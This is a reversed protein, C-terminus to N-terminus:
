LGDITGALSDITGTLAAISGPMIDILGSTDLGMFGDALDFDVRTIRGFTDPAGPLSISASMGPTATDVAIATVKQVRGTGQRRALIAAAAGPGPYPTSDLEFLIGREPTGASDTREQEIDFEDRWRYRVVVGTASDGARALTDSGDRTNTASISVLASIQRNEPTALRWDRLEDCWLVLNESSTIGMLFDWASVGAKWVFLEPRREIVPIRESTSDAADGGWEYEYNADATTAGSFAEIVETGEYLMADDIYGIETAFSGDVKFLPFAAVAGPPAVAIVSSRANWNLDSLAVTNGAVDPWPTLGNADVWRIVSTMFRDHGGFMRGYGSLVYSKGQQVSTKGALDMPSVYLTASATANYGVSTPGTRGIGAHFITANGAAAWNNINGTASPNLLLNTVPWYATVDADDPGAELAAGIKDLVYDIVDRLSTEYLRPDPDDELAIYDMLLAEDSALELEITRQVHDISRSRLGLDCTRPTDGFALPIRRGAGRPDLWDVTAEDVFPIVVSATAYPVAGSDLVVNGLEVTTADGDITASAYPRILVTDSM